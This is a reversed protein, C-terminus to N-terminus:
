LGPANIGATAAQWQRLQKGLETGAREALDVTALHHRNGRETHGDSIDLSDGRNGLLAHRRAPGPAVTGRRSLMVAAPGHSRLDLLEAGSLPHRALALTELVTFTKGRLRPHQKVLDSRMATTTTLLLDFRELDLSSLARSRFSEVHKAGGDHQSIRTASMKCMPLGDRALLGASMTIVGGARGAAFAILPSRCVNAACVVLLSLTVPAQGAERMGTM